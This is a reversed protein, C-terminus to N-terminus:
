PIKSLSELEDKMEKIEKFILEPGLSPETSIVLARKGKIPAIGLNVKSFKLVLYHFKGFWNQWKSGIEFMRSLQIDIERAADEPDLSERGERMTGALMYQGEYIAVFRVREDISFIKSIFSSVMESEKDM